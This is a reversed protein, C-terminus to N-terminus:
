YENKDAEYSDKLNKLVEKKKINNTVEITKEFVPEPKVVGSKCGEGVCANIINALLNDVSNLDSV